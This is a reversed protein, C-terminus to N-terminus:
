GETSVAGEKGWGGQSPGDCGKFSLFPWQPRPWFHGGLEWRGDGEM